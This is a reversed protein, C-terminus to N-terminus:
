PAAGVLHAKALDLLAQGLREQDDQRDCLEVRKVQYDLCRERNGLYNHSAAAVSMASAKDDDTMGACRLSLSM